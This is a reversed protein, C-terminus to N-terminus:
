LISFYKFVSVGMPPWSFFLRLWQRITYVITVFAVEQACAQACVVCVCVLHMNVTFVINKESLGFVVAVIDDFNCSSLLFFLISIRVSSLFLVLLTLPVSPTRYSYTCRLTAPHIIFDIGIDTEDGCQM